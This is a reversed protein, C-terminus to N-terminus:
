GGSVEELTKGAPEPLAVIAVLTVPITVLMWQIAPGHDHFRDYLRGELALAVAGCGIEIVYRLAGVTARYQTPVIELAFGAILADGSFFGLFGLVWLAPVAWGPAHNFFFFFSVGALAAMGMAVPKRGMRDSLKGAAISLGLGVLGGPILLLSVQGPAYHYAEQLYKQALFTPCSIAFGFAAAATIATAIRSPYDRALDRFLNLVAGKKLCASVCCGSWSFRSRASSICRGGAM